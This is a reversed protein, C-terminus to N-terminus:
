DGFNGSENDVVATNTCNGNLVGNLSSVFKKREVSLGSIINNGLVVIVIGPNVDISASLFVLGFIIVIM